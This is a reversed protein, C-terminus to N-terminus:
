KLYQKLFERIQKIQFNKALQRLHAVFPVLTPDSELIVTEELIAEIDGIAVLKLLAAISESDPPHICASSDFCKRLEEKKRIREEQDEYIWELGLHIRLRELLQSSEVPKGLFQDCGALLSEQQTNHFVSASLALLVVNKLEPVLRLRKTAEFGDMVPM